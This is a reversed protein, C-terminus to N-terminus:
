PLVEIIRADGLLIDDENWDHLSNKITQWSYVYDEGNRTGVDQTVIQMKESDFGNIVLMHYIPGGNTFNPNELLKGAFPAIILHGDLLIEQIDEFSPNEHIITEFGYQIEMMEATQAITTSEYSGFYEIEWDVLRLLENNYDERNLNMNGYLNAVLLTSAEECTEQWPENWDSYPAQTYFPMDINLSTATEDIEEIITMEPADPGQAANSQQYRYHNFLYSAMLIVSIAGIIILTKKTM